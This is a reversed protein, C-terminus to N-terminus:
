IKECSPYIEYDLLENGSIGNSYLHALDDNADLDDDDEDDLKDKLSELDKIITELFELDIEANM